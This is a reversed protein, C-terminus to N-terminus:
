SYKDFKKKLDQLKINIDKQMQNLRDISKSNEHKIRLEIRQAILNYNNVLTLAIEHGEKVFEKAAKVPTTKQFKTPHNLEKLLVLKIRKGQAQYYLNLYTEVGFRINKIDDLVPIIDKKMLARQGTLSKFPNIRYDIVTDSPQGLVMDAESSLIPQLITEFHEKKINSVDADFFLIIENKAKEVGQVMAWSKGRNQDLKEYKFEHKKLLETVLKDTNDVSGDNVVIIEADPNFLCCASVVDAITKEENYVSIIISTKM